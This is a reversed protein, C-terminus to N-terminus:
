RERGEYVKPGQYKKETFLSPDEKIWSEEGEVKPRRAAAMRAANKDAALTPMVVTGTRSPKRPRNREARVGAAITGLGALATAAGGLAVLKGGRAVRKEGQQVIKRM